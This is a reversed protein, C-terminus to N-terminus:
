KKRCLYASATQFQNVFADLYGCALGKPLEEEDFLVLVATEGAQMQGYWWIFQKNKADVANVKTPYAYWAFRSVNAWNNVIIMDAQTTKQLSQGWAVLPQWGRLQQQLEAIPTRPKGTAFLLVSVLLLLLVGSSAIAAYLLMHWDKNNLKTYLYHAIYPTLLAYGSVTWHPLLNNKTASYLGFAFLLIVYFKQWDILPGWYHYIVWGGVLSLVPGYAVIQALVFVPMKHWQIQGGAVHDGQYLLSAFDTQLLFVFFPSIVLGGLAVAWYFPVQKYWRKLYGALVFSIPVLIATFKALGAAGVAIGLLSAQKFGLQKTATTTPTTAQKCLTNPQMILAIALLCVLLPTDPVIGFWLLYVMPNLSFLVLAFLAIWHNRSVRYSYIYLLLHVLLMTAVTTLRVVLGSADLLVPALMWGVLPPHDFYGIALHLAYLGYHAEDVGLDLAPIIFVLTALLALLLLVCLTVIYKHLRPM